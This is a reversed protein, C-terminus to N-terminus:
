HGFYVFFNFTNKHSTLCQLMYLITNMHNTRMLWMEHKEHTDEMDGGRMQTQRWSQLCSYCSPRDTIMTQVLLIMNTQTLAESLHWDYCDGRWLFFLLGQPGELKEMKSSRELSRKQFIHPNKILYTRLDSKFVPNSWLTKIQQKAFIQSPNSLKVAKSLLWPIRAQGLRM